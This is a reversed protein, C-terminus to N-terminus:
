NLKNTNPLGGETSTSMKQLYGLIAEDLDIVGNSIARIRKAAARDGPVLVSEQYGQPKLERISTVLQSTSVDPRKDSVIARPDVALVVAGLDYESTVEHGMAAGTLTGVLLELSLCLAYGKHGGFPLVAEAYEPNTTLRGSRDLFAEEPLPRNELVAQRIEGWVHQAPSFDIVVGGETSPFAFCIPNTGLLPQSSGYPAVVPPGASNTILGVCGASNIIRGYPALRGFRAFNILSVIGISNKQALSIALETAGRAALQGFERRGDILASAGNQNIIRPEGERKALVSDILLFKGIGHTGKGELQAELYDSVIFKAKEGSVGRIRLAALMLERVEEISIQMSAGKFSYNVQM